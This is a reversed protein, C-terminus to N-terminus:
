AILRACETKSNWFGRAVFFAGNLANEKPAAIRIRVSVFVKSPDCAVTVDYGCCL